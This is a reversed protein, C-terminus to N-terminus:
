LRAPAVLNVLVGVPAGVAATVALILAARRTGPQRLRGSRLYAISGLAGTAVHTAIATGAVEAPRLGTMRSLGVTALVGGPGVATIGTGAARGFCALAVLPLLGRM